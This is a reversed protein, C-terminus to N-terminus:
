SIWSSFYYAWNRIVVVDMWYLCWSLRIAFVRIFNSHTLYVM